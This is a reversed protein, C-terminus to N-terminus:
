HHPNPSSSFESTSKAGYVIKAHDRNTSKPNITVLYSSRGNKTTTTFSAWDNNPSGIGRADCQNREWNKWYSEQRMQSGNTWSFSPHNQFSLELILIILAQNQFWSSGHIFLLKHHVLFYFLLLSLSLHHDSMTSSLIIVVCSFLSEHCLGRKFFLFSSSNVISLLSMFELSFILPSLSLSLLPFISYKLHGLM